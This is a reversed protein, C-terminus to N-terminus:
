RQPQSPPPAALFVFRRMNDPYDNGNEGYIGRRAFFGPHDILYMPVGHQDAARLVSFREVGTGFRMPIDRVVPSNEVNDVISAYGPVILSPEEGAAKLAGPLAGIVDALGGAKAHPAAEAAVIAIKM